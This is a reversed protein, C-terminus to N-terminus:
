QLAVDGDLIHATGPDIQEAVESGADGALDMVDIAAIVDDAHLCDVRGVDRGHSAVRCMAPLLKPVCNRKVVQPTLWPGATPPTTSPVGGRRLSLSASM